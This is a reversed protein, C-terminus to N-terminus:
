PFRDVWNKPSSNFMSHMGAVCGICSCHYVGGGGEVITRSRNGHLM